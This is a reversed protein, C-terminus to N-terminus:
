SRQREDRTRQRVEQWAGEMLHWTGRDIGAAHLKLVVPSGCTLLTSAKM